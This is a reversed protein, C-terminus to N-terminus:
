FRSWFTFLTLSWFPVLGPVLIPVFHSCSGLLPVLIPVFDSCSGLFCSWFPFLFGFPPPCFPFLTSKLVWFHSCETLGSHSCLQSCSGLFHSWFLFLTPFFVRVLIPVFHSCSGLLPVAIPVISVLVWFRSLFLFLASIFVCFCSWFLFLIPVLAFLFGVTPRSHSCLRFSGFLPVLVAFLTPVLVWFHPAFHSCSGLLPVLIPVFHPDLVQFPGSFFLTPVLVCFLLPVLIPFLFAFTPGPDSCLPFLFGFTYWFIFLTPALVWFQSWFSFLASVLVGFDSWFPFLAPVLLPVLIPLFHSCSGLPVIVWFHPLFPFLHSCSGFLPVVIPAFHCCSRVLITGSTPFLIPVLVRIPVFYSCACLGSHSCLRFLFWLSPGSHSVFHPCSGLLPVLILVLVWFHSWFRFM